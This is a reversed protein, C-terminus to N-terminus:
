TNFKIPVNFNDSDTIYIYYKITYKFKNRRKLQTHRINTSGLGTEASTISDSFSIGVVSAFFAFSCPKRIHGRISIINFNDNTIMIKM